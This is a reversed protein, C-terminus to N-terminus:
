ILTITLRTTSGLAAAAGDGGYNTAPYCGPEGSFFPLLGFGESGARVRTVPGETLSFTLGVPIESTTRFLCSWGIEFVRVAVGGLEVRITAIRPLAGTFGGYRLHWPLSEQLFSARVGTSGRCSSEAMVARTVLGILARLIKRITASHFSGEMTVPCFTSYATENFATLIQFSPWTLRFGREAGRVELRAASATGVAVALAVAVIMLATARVPRVRM